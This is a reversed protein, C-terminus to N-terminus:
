LSVLHAPRHEPLVHETSLLKGTLGIACHLEGIARSWGRRCNCYVLESRGRMVHTRSVLQLWM